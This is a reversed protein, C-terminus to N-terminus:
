DGLDDAYATGSDALASRLMSLWSLADWSPTSGRFTSADPPLRNDDPVLLCTPRCLDAQRYISSITLGTLNLNLTVHLRLRVESARLEEIQTQGMFWIEHQDSGEFRTSNEKPPQQLLKQRSLCYVQWRMQTDMLQFLLMTNSHGCMHALSRPLWTTHMHLSSCLLGVCALSLYLLIRHLLGHTHIVQASENM